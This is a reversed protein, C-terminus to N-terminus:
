TEGELIGISFACNIIRMSHLFSVKHVYSFNEKKENISSFNLKLGKISVWPDHPPSIKWVFIRNLKLSYNANCKKLSIERFVLEFHPINEGFKWLEDLVKKLVKRTIHLSANAEEDGRAYVKHAWYYMFVWVLVLHMSYHICFGRVCMFKSTKLSFKIKWRPFIWNQAKLKKGM